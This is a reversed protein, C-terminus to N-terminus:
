HPFDSIKRIEIFHMRGILFLFWEINWWDRNNLGVRDIQYMDFSFRFFLLFSSDIRLLICFRNWQHIPILAAEFLLLWKKNMTENPQSSLSCM